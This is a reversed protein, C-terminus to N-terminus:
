AYAHTPMSMHVLFTTVQKQTYSHYSITLVVGCSKCDLHLSSLMLVVLGLFSVGSQSPLPEVWVELNIFHKEQM